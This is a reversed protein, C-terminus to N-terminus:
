WTSTNAYWMIFSTFKDHFHNNNLLQTVRGTGGSWYLYLREYGVWCLLCYRGMPLICWWSCAHYTGNNLSWYIGATNFTEMNSLVNSGIELLLKLSLCGVGSGGTQFNWHKYQCQNDTSCTSSDDVHTHHLFRGAVYVCSCVVGDDPSVDPDPLISIIYTYPQLNKGRWWSLCSATMRM